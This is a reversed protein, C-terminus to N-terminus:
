TIHRNIVTYQCSDGATCCPRLSQFKDCGRILPLSYVRTHHNSEVSPVLDVIMACRYQLLSETRQWTLYHYRNSETSPQASPFQEMYKYM